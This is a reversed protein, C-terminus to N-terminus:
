FKELLPDGDVSSFEDCRRIDGRRLSFSNHTVLRMRRLRQYDKTIPASDHPLSKPNLNFLKMLEIGKSTRLLM